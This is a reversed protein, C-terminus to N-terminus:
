RLAVVATQRARQTLLPPRARPTTLTSLFWLELLILGFAVPMMLLGAGDHFVGQALSDYGISYLYATAVIRVVNCALAIPVSSLVLLVRQWMPRRVIYAVVATVILFALAMRLGSCAEAVAVRQGAVELVHGFREVPIGIIELISASVQAGFGQLPLMVADHMRRPLPLMLLLFALPYWVRAYGRWGILAMVVGSACVVMGVNSISSYLYYAGFWNMALGLGFLALGLPSLSLRIGELRRRNTAVLYAAAAPVLQGASYDANYQWVIWLDVLNSWFAWVFAAAVAAAPSWRKIQGWLGANASSGAGAGADDARTGRVNAADTGAASANAGAAFGAGPHFWDTVSSEAAFVTGAPAVTRVLWARPGVDCCDGLMAPGVIVSEDGVVCGHGLLAPGVIRADPAVRVGEGCWIAPALEHYGAERFRETALSRTVAHLYTPWDSVQHTQHRLGVAGVRLGARQLAPVLLEELAVDARQPLPVHRIEVVQDAERVLQEPAAGRRRVL